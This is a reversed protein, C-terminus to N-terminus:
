KVEGIIFTSKLLQESHPEAVVRRVGVSNAVSNQSFDWLFTSSKPVLFLALSIHSSIFKRWASDFWLFSLIHTHVFIATLELKGSHSFINSGNKTRQKAQSIPWVFLKMKQKLNSHWQLHWILFRFIFCFALYINSYTFSCFSIIGQSNIDLYKM